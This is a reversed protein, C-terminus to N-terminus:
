RTRRRRVVRHYDAASLLPVFRHPIALRLRILWGEEYPDELLLDPKHAIRGNVEEVVGDLPSVLRKAGRLGEIEGFPVAVLVDDGVDPLEVYAIDGLTKLAYATVGVLSIDGDVSCWEHTPTYKLHEPVM